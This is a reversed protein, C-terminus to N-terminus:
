VRDNSASYTNFLEVYSYNCDFTINFDKNSTEYTLLKFM